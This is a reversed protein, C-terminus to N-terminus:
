VKASLLEQVQKATALKAKKRKERSFTMKAGSGGGCQPNRSVKLFEEQEEIVEREIEQPSRGTWRTEITIVPADVDPTLQIPIARLSLFGFLATLIVGVAVKVPNSIVFKTLDMTM